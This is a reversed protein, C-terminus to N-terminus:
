IVQEKCLIIKFTAFIRPYECQHMLTEMNTESRSLDGPFVISALYQKSKSIFNATKHWKNKHEPQEENPLISNELHKYHQFLAVLLSQLPEMFLQLGAKASLSM